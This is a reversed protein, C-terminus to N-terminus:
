RRNNSFNREDERRKYENYKKNITTQSSKIGSVNELWISIVKYPFQKNEKLEKVVPYLEVWNIGLTWYDKMPKQYPMEKKARDLLVSYDM